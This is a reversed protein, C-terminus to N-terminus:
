PPFIAFCKNSNFVYSEIFTTWSPKRKLEAMAGALCFWNLMEQQGSAEVSALSTDRWRSYEGSQLAAYLARDSEIDPYM